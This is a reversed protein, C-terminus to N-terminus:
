APWPRPAPGPHGGNAPRARGQLRGAPTSSCEGGVARLPHGPVPRGPTRLPPVGDARAAGSQGSAPQLPAAPTVGTTLAGTRGREGSRSTSRSSATCSSTAGERGACSPGGPAYDLLDWPRCPCAARAGCSSRPTRSAPMAGSRSAGSSPTCCGAPFRGWSSRSCDRAGTGPWGQAVTLVSALLASVASLALLYLSAPAWGSWSPPARRAGSAQNPASRERARRQGSRGGCRLPARLAPGGFAAFFPASIVGAVAGVLVGEGQGLLLAIVTGFVTAMLLSIAGGVLSGAVAGRRRSGPRGPRRGASPRWGADRRPRLGPGGTWGVPWGARWASFSAVGWGSSAPGRRGRAVMGAAVADPVGSQVLRQEIERGVQGGTSATALGLVAGALLGGLALGRYRPPRHALVAPAGDPASPRAGTARRLAGRHSGRSATSSVTSSHGGLARSGGAGALVLGPPGRGPHGSPAWLPAWASGSSSGTSSGSTPWRTGGALVALGAPAAGPLLRDAGPPDDGRGALGALARDPGPTARTWGRRAFM